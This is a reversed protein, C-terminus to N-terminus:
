VIVRFLRNEEFHFGIPSHTAEAFWFPVNKAWTEEMSAVGAICDSVENSGFLYGVSGCRPFCEGSRKKVERESVSSRQREVVVVLAGRSDSWDYINKFYEVYRSYTLTRPVDPTELTSVQFWISTADSTKRTPVPDQSHNSSSRKELCKTKSVPPQAKGMECGFGEFYGKM